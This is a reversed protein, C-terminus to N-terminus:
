LMNIIAAPSHSGFQGCEWLAEEENETLSCSKNPRKGMGKERLLRAKGELVSCSSAFARSSLISFMYGSEKLYREIAAQM